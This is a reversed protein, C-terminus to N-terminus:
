LAPMGLKDIADIVDEIERIYVSFLKNTEVDSLATGSQRLAFIREFPDSEIGIRRATEKVVDEKKVPANFGHVVLVARFLSAFSTLSETMLKGLKEASASAPIYLRRLQILKSRLEYELQLRMSAISIKMDALPDFGYLVVRAKRMQDFEIPFVDVADKLESVTFYVPMSHGMRSWERMPAQAARLDQPRIQQLAILLNYDSSSDIFDGAAASGYLVISALNSGHAAKLDDVLGDFQHKVVAMLDLVLFVFHFILFQLVTSDARKRKSNL